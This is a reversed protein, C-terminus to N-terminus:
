ICGQQSEAKILKPQLDKHKICVLLKPKKKNQARKRHIILFHHIAPTKQLLSDKPSEIETTEAFIANM